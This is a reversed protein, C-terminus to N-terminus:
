IFLLWVNNALYTETGLASCQYINSLAAKDDAPAIFTCLNGTAHLPCCRMRVQEPLSMGRAVETPKFQKVRASLAVILEALDLSQQEDAAEAAAAAAARGQATNQGISGAAVVLPMQLKSQTYVSGCCLTHAHTMM